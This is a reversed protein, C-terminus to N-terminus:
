YNETLLNLKFTWNLLHVCVYFICMSNHICLNPQQKISGNKRDRWLNSSAGCLYRDNSITVTTNKVSQISKRVSSWRKATDFSRQICFVTDNHMHIRQYQTTKQCDGFTTQFDRKTHPQCLFLSTLCFMFFSGILYASITDSCCHWHNYILDINKNLKTKCMHIYKFYRDLYNTYSTNCQHTRQTWITNITKSLILVFDCSSNLDFIVRLNASNGSSNPRPGMTLSIKITYSM